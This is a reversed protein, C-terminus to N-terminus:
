INEKWINDEIKYYSGIFYCKVDICADDKHRMAVGGRM